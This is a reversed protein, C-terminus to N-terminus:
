VGTVNIDLTGGSINNKVYRARVGICAVDINLTWQSEAEDITVSSVPEYNDEYDDAVLIDIYLTGDLTGAVDVWKSIVTINTFPVKNTKCHWATTVSAAMNYNNLLNMLQRWISTQDQIVNSLAM